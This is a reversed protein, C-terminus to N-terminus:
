HVVVYLTRFLIKLDTWLSANEVYAVALRNKRPAIEQVYTQIPDASGELLEIENRFEISAPDTIGPRVSLIVDRTREDWFEVYRPVEPRPGVLSMDGVLVNILQPLEDLKWRRLVAGARTVRPDCDVTIEPGRRAADERMTRFKYIRFTRGGRGVRRQRFFVPGRSDLVIVCAIAGLLPALLVLGVGSAVTDFARKM